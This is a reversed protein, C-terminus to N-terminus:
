ADTTSLDREHSFWHLLTAADTLAESHKCWKRCTGARCSCSGAPPNLPDLIEGAALPSIVVSYVEGDSDKLLLFGLFRPEPRPQCQVAYTECTFNKRHPEGQRITLVYDALPNAGPHLDYSRSKYTLSAPLVRGVLLM